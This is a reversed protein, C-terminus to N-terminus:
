APEKKTMLQELRRLVSLKDPKPLRMMTKLAHTAEPSRLRNAQHHECTDDCQRQLGCPCGGGHDYKAM